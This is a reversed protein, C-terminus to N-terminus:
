SRSSERSITQELFIFKSSTALSQAYDVGRVTRLSLRVELHDTFQTPSSRLIRRVFRSQRSALMRQCCAYSPVMQESRLGKPVTRDILPTLKWSAIEWFVCAPLKRWKRMPLSLIACELARPYVYRGNFNATNQKIANCVNSVSLSRFNIPLRFNLPFKGVSVICTLKNTSM